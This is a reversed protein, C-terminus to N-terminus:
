KIALQIDCPDAVQPGRALGVQRCRKDPGRGRKSITYLGAQSRKVYDLCNAYCVSTQRESNLQAIVVSRFLQM